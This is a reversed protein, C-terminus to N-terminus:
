DDDAEDIYVVQIASGHIIVGRGDVTRGDLVNIDLDYIHAQEFTIRETATCVTVKSGDRVLVSIESVLKAFEGAM